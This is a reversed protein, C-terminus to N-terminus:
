LIKTELKFFFIRHFKAITGGVTPSSGPVGPMTVSRRIWEAVGGNHDYLDFEGNYLVDLVEILAYLPM